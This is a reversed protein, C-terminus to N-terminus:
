GRKSLTCNWIARGLANRGHAGSGHPTMGTTSAWSALTGTGCSAAREGHTSGGGEPPGYTWSTTGTAIRRWPAAVAEKPPGAEQAHWQGDELVGAHLWKPRPRVIRQAGLRHAICQRLWVHDIADFCGCLDADLGWNVNRKELGVPVAELAEQPSRGLRLGDACGRCEEEYIAHLVEGTARPVIQDELPPLGIPRQRGDPPPIDVGKGPRAHYAGRKLRDALDRLKTALHEGSAAGPQGEGRLRRGLCAPIRRASDTSPTAM